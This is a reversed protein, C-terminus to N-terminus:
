CFIIKEPEFDKIRPLILGNYSLELTSRHVLNKGAIDVAFIGGQPVVQHIEGKEILERGGSIRRPIGRIDLFYRRGLMNKVKEFDGYQITERIRTSSVPMNGYKVPSLVDVEIKEKSLLGRLASADTDARYGCKFNEGVVVYSLRTSNLIIKFFERGTMKSLDPSFDILVVADVGMGVLNDLKSDLSAIDGLYLGKNLVLLPNKKFTFVISAYNNAHEKVRHILSQHGIHVGDFVGITIATKVNSFSSGKIFDEWTILKM